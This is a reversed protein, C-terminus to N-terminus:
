GSLLQQEPVSQPSKKTTGKEPGDKKEAWPLGTYTNEDTLWAYYLKEEPTRRDVKRRKKMATRKLPTKRLM